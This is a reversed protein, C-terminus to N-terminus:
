KQRELAAQIKGVINVFHRYEKGKKNKNSYKYNLKGSRYVIRGFPAGNVFFYDPFRPWQRIKGQALLDLFIQPLKNQTAKQAKQLEKKTQAIEEDKAFIEERQESWRESYYPDVSQGNQQMDASHKDWMAARELLQADIAFKSKQAKKM